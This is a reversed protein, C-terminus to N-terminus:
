ENSKFDDSWIQRVITILIATSWAFLLIGNMAQIGCLLRWNGELVIDGYGLSTYTVSSFYVADNFEAFADAGCCFRYAIAWLVVDLYHKLALFVATISIVLSRGRGGCCQRIRTGFRKLFRVILSTALAHLAVTIAIGMIGVTIPLM